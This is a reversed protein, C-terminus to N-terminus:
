TECWSLAPEDFHICPEIKEIVPFIHPKLAYTNRLDFSCNFVNVVLSLVV